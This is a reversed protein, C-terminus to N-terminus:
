EPDVESFEYHATLLHPEDEYPDPSDASSRVREQRFIHQGQRFYRVVDHVLSAGYLAEAHRLDVEDEDAVMPTIEPHQHPHRNGSNKPSRSMLLYFLFVVIFNKDASLIFIQSVWWTLLFEFIM